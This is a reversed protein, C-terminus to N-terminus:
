EQQGYGPSFLYYIRPDGDVTPLSQLGNGRCRLQCSLPRERIKTSYVVYESCALLTFLIMYPFIASRLAADHDHIPFTSTKHCLLQTHTQLGAPSCM